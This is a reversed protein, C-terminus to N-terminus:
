RFRFEDRLHQLEHSIIDVNGDAIRSLVLTAFAEADREVAPDLRTIEFTRMAVGREPLAFLFENLDGVKDINLTEHGLLWHAIEHLIVHDRHIGTLRNSYIIFEASDSTLWLGDVHAPTTATILVVERNKRQQLWKLFSTIEFQGWPYNLKQLLQPPTLREQQRHQFVRQMSQFVFRLM